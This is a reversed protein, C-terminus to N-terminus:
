TRAEEPPSHAREIAGASVRPLVAALVYAPVGCEERWRHGAELRSEVAQQHQSLWGALEATAGDMGGHDHLWAIAAEQERSEERRQAQTASMADISEAIEEESRVGAKLERQVRRVAALDVSLGGARARETLRKTAAEAARKSSPNGGARAPPSLPPQETETLPSPSPPNIELLREPLAQAPAQAPAQAHAQARAQAGKHGRASAAEAAAKAKAYIELQTDNVLDGGDDRWYRAILPWCRDWEAESCGTARRITQHDAPLRAGRRWAQTLMERYLGRPEMPLLFASSGMWRDTWTWEALLKDVM